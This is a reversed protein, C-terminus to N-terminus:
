GASPEMPSAAKRSLADTTDLVNVIRSRAEVIAANNEALLQRLYTIRTRAHALARKGTDLKTAHATERQALREQLAAIEAHLQAVTERSAAREEEMVERVHRRIHVIMEMLGLYATVIDNNGEPAALATKPLAAHIASVDLHEIVGEATSQEGAARLREEAKKLADLIVSM